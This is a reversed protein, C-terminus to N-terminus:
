RCDAEDDTIDGDFAIGELQAETDFSLGLSSYPDRIDMDSVTGM